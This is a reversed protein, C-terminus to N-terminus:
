LLLWKFNKRTKFNYHDIGAFYINEDPPQETQINTGAFLKFIESPISLQKMQPLLIQLIPYM